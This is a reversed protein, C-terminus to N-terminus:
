LDWCVGCYDNCDTVMSIKVVPDIITMVFVALRTMVVTITINMFIPFVGDVTFVSEVGGCGIKELM